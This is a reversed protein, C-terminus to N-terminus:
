RPAAQQAARSWARTRVDYVHVEAGPLNSVGLFGGFVDIRGDHLVAAPARPTAGGLSEAAAPYHAESIPARAVGARAASNGRTATDFLQLEGDAM